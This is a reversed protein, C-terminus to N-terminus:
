ELTPMVLSSIKKDAAESWRTTIAKTRTYFYIDEMGHMHLEGFLSSKWGGFSFFAMPVPIPANIGVMGVEIENQSRRAAGGAGTFIAIGNAYQNSNILKIADDLTAARVVEGKDADYAYVVHGGKVEGMVVMNMAEHDDHTFPHNYTTVVGDIKEQM